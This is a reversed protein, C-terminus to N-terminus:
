ALALEGGAGDSFRRVGARGIGFVRGFHPLRHVLVHLAGLRLLIAVEEGDGRRMHTGDAAPLTIAGGVALEPRLMLVPGEDNEGGRVIALGLSETEGTLSEAGRQALRLGIGGGDVPECRM